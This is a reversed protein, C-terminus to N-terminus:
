TYTKFAIVIFCGNEFSKCVFVILLLVSYSLSNKMDNMSLGGTVLDQYATSNKHSLLTVGM